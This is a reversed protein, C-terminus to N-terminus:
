AECTLNDLCDLGNCPEVPLSPQVNVDRTALPNVVMPISHHSDCGDSIVDGDGDLESSHDSRVSGLHSGTSYTAGFFTYRIWLVYLAALPIYAASVVWGSYWRSTHRAEASFRSLPIASDHNPTIWFEGGAWVANAFVWLFQASYHAHDIMMHKSRLTLYVFDLGILLTPVFFVLWMPQLWWNWATDKGVWFFIHINEYEHWTKFFFSFRPHLSTSDSAANVSKEPSEELFRMPKLVVYYLSIWVLTCIFVVGAEKTHRDVISKEHDDFYGYHDDHLEGIMWWYNAFLWLFESMKIWFEGINRRWYAARFILFLAYLCALAGIILGPLLWSQVWCLDKTIWFYIHLNDLGSESLYYSLSWKTHPPNLWCIGSAGHELNDARHPAEMNNESNTDNRKWVGLQSTPHQLVKGEEGETMKLQHFQYSQSSITSSALM